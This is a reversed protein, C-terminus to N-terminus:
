MYHVITCMIACHLSGWNSCTQRETRNHALGHYYTCANFVTLNSSEMEFCIVNSYVFILSSLHEVEFCNWYILSTKWLCLKRYSIKIKSMGNEWLKKWFAWVIIYCKTIEGTLPNWFRFFINPQFCQFNLKYLRRANDAHWSHPTVLLPLDIIITVGGELSIGCM